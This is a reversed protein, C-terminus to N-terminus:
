GGQKNCKMRSARVNVKTSSSKLLQIEISAAEARLIPRELSKGLEVQSLGEQGVTLSSAGSVYPHQFLSSANFQSSQIQSVQDM